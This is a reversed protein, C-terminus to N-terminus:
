KADMGACRSCSQTVELICSYETLHYRSARATAMAVLNIHFLWYSAKTITCVSIPICALLVRRCGVRDILSGIIPSTITTSLMAFSWLASFTRRSVHLDLLWGDVFPALSFSHGPASSATVFVIAVLMAYGYHCGESNKEDNEPQAFKMVPTVRAARSGM